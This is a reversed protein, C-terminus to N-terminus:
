RSFLEGDSDTTDSDDTDSAGVLTSCKCPDGGLTAFHKNFTRCVFSSSGALIASMDVEDQVSM